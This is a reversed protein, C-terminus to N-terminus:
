SFFANDVEELAQKRRDNLVTSDQDDDRWLYSGANPPHGYPQYDGTQPTQGYTGEGYGNQAYAGSPPVDSDQNQASGPYPSMMFSAMAVPASHNAEVEVAGQSLTHYVPPPSGPFPPPYTHSSSPDPSSILPQTDGDIEQVKPM